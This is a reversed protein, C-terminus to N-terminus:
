AVACCSVEAARQASLDDGNNVHKSHSDPHWGVNGYQALQGSFNPLHGRGDEVAAQSDGVEEEEEGEEELSVVMEMSVVPHKSLSGTSHDRGTEIAVEVARGLRQGAEAGLAVQSYHVREHVSTKGLPRASGPDTHSYPPHKTGGGDGLEEDLLAIPERLHAADGAVIHQRQVVVRVDEQEVVVQKEGDEAKQHWQHDRSYAVGSDHALEVSRVVVPCHVDLGARQHKDDKYHTKSGSSGQVEEMVHLQKRISCLTQIHVKYHRHTQTAKVGAQVGEEEEEHGPRRAGPKM